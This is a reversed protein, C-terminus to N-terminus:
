SSGGSLRPVFVILMRGVKDVVLMDNQGVNKFSPPIMKVTLMCKEGYVTYGPSARTVGGMSSSSMTRVRVMTVAGKSMGNSAIARHLMTGHIM